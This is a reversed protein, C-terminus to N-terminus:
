NISYLLFIYESFNFKHLLILNDWTDIIDKHKPKHYIVFIKRPYKLLSESINSIVKKLIESDFPNFLYFVNEDKRIDYKAADAEIIQFETGVGTKSKYGDSNVRAIKCLETSFEVGRVEKFGFESAILLVRGKGCGFDILVSDEPVMPSIAKLLKRLPQVKSAEYHVGHERNESNITLDTLEAVSSTNTGYRLDFLYDVIKIHITSVTAGLGQDRLSSWIKKLRRLPDIKYYNKM